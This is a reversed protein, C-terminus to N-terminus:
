DLNANLIAVFVLWRTDLATVDVVERSRTRPSIRSPPGEVYLHELKTRRETATTMM